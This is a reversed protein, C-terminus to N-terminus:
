EPEDVEDACEDETPIELKERGEGDNGLDMLLLGFGSLRMTVDKLEDIAEQKANIKRAARAANHIHEMAIEIESYMEDEPDIQGDDEDIDFEDNVM